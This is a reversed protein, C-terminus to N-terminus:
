KNHCAFCLTSGAIDVRLFSVFGLTGHADHCSACEVKGDYITLGATTIAQEEKIGLTDAGILVGVPHDNGLDTGIIAYSGPYVTNMDNGPTGNSEYVADFATVGDHCSLCAISMVGPPDVSSDLTPSSYLTFVSETGTRSWLPLQGDDKTHAGHCFSCSGFGGIISSNISLDHPTGVVSIANVTDIYIVSLVALILLLPNQKHAMPKELCGDRASM